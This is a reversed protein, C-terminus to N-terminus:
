ACINSCYYLVQKFQSSQWILSQTVVQKCVDRYDNGCLDSGHHYVTGMTVVPGPCCSHLQACFEQLCLTAKSAFHHINKM